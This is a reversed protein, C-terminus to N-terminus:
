KPLNNILNIILTLIKKVNYKQDVKYYKNNISNKTNFTIRLSYYDDSLEAISIYIRFYKYLEHINNDSSLRADKFYKRILDNPTNIFFILSNNNISYHESKPLDGININNGNIFKFKSKKYIRFKMKNIHEDYNEVANNNLIDLIKNCIDKQYELITNEEFLEFLKIYKM